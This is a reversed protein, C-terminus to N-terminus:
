RTVSLHGATYTTTGDPNQVAGANVTGSSGEATATTSILSTGPSAVSQAFTSTTPADSTGTIGSAERTVTGDPAVTISAQGTQTSSSYNASVSQPPNAPTPAPIPAPLPMATPGSSYCQSFSAAYGDSLFSCPVAQTTRGGIRLFGSVETVARRNREERRPTDIVPMVKGFSVVAELQEEAVGRSLLYSVVNQARRRALDFNYDLSGVLDTHGYVSFRLRPYTLIWAAQQDLIRQADARLVDKDFDFTVTTEVERRFKTNLDILVERSMHPDQGSVVMRCGAVSPRLDATIYECPIGSPVLAAANFNPTARSTQVQQPACAGLALGSAAFIALHRLMTTERDKRDKQLVVSHNDLHTQWKGSFVLHV